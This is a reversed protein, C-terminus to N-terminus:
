IKIKGTVVSDYINLTLPIYNKEGSSLFYLPDSLQNPDFGEETLKGKLHKFTGTVDISGQLFFLGCMNLSDYMLYRCTFIHCVQVRIFLPRAYVPLSGQVHQFVAASDFTQGERLTVAAM